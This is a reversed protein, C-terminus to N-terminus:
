VGEVVDVGDVVEIGGAGDVEDVNYVDEVGADVEIGDELVGEIGVVESVAATGTAAAAVEWVVVNNGCDEVDGVDVHDGVGM